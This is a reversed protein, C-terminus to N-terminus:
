IMRQYFKKLNELSSDMTLVTYAPAQQHKGSEAHQIKIKMGRRLYWMFHVKSIEPSWTLNGGGSGTTRDRNWLIAKKIETQYHM